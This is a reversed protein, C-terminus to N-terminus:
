VLLKLGSIRGEREWRAQTLVIPESRRDVPADSETKTSLRDSTRHQVDKGCRRLFSGVPDRGKHSLLATPHDPKKRWLVALTCVGVVGEGRFIIVIVPTLVRVPAKLM